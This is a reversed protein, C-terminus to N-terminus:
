PAVIRADTTFRRFNTYTAVGELTAAGRAYQERMEVPVLTDIGSAPAWTVVIQGLPLRHQEGVRQNNPPWEVLTRRIEGTEPVVWISGNSPEDRGNLDKVITPRERERYDIRWTRVGAIATEGAKRFSFRRRNSSQLLHLALTPVNVTRPFTDNALNFRASERVVRAAAALAGTSVLRELRGDHDRVPQGDVEFTDRFGVWENRDTSRVLAYDSLLARTQVRAGRGTPLGDAPWRELTQNYQETAVITAMRTQITRIYAGMRTVVTDLSPARPAAAAPWGALLAILVTAGALRM